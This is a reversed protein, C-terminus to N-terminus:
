GEQLRLKGVYGDFMLIMIVWFRIHTFGFNRFGFLFYGDDGDVVFNGNDAAFDGDDGDVCSNDLFFM